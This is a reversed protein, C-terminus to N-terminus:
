RDIVGANALAMQRNEQRPLGLAVSLGLLNGCGAVIVTAHYSGTLDFMYGALIPLTVAAACWAIYIRSAIRGYDAAPWYHAIAGATSGSVFGYAVGIMGMASAAVLPQPWVTLVVAGTVALGHAFASVYPIPFRDM